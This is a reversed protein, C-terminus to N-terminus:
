PPVESIMFVIMLLSTRAHARQLLRQDAPSDVSPRHIVLLEDATASDTAIEAEVVDVDVHLM